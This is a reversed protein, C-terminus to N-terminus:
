QELNELMEYCGEVMDEVVLGLDLACVSQYLEDLVKRASRSELMAMTRFEGRPIEYLNAHQETRNQARKQHLAAGLDLVQWLGWLGAGVVEAEQADFQIIDIEPRLKM